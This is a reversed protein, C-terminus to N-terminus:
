SVKQHQRGSLRPLQERPNYNDIKAMVMRRLDAVMKSIDNLNRIQTQSGTELHPPVILDGWEGTTRTGGQQPM